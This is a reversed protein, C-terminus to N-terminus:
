WGTPSIRMNMRASATTAYHQGDPACYIAFTGGGHDFRKVDEREIDGVSGVEVWGVLRHSANQESGVM